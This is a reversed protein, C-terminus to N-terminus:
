LGVQRWIQRGRMTTRYVADEAFHSSTGPTTYRRVPGSTYGREQYWAYPKRWSIFAQKGEVRKMVDGRLQGTKMPTRRRSTRHVDDLMLRLGVNVKQNFEYRIRPTNDILQYAM